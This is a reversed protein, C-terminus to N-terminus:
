IINTNESIIQETLSINNFTYLYHDPYSCIHGMYSNPEIQKPTESSRKPCVGGSPPYVFSGGAANAGNGGARRSFRGFFSRKSCGGGGETEFVGNGGVPDIWWRRFLHLRLAFSVAAGHAFHCKTDFPCYGTMEWKNCIRTKWNSHRQISGSCGSVRDKSQEDHLFSCMDGYSCGEDTYFKKCHRGKYSRQGDFMGASSTPIPIQHEERRGDGDAAAVIQPWNTKFFM